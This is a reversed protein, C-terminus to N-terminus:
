SYGWEKGQKQKIFPMAETNKFAARVCQPTM